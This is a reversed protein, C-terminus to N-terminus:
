LSLALWIMHVICSMGDCSVQPFLAAVLLARLLPLSKEFGDAADDAGLLVREPEKEISAEEADKAIVKQKPKGCKCKFCKKNRSFNNIKCRPGKWEGDDGNKGGGRGGVGKELAIAVGDVGGNRRGLAEVQRSRLNPPVFGAASLLELFQRKLGAITQVTKISIFNERCFDYRSKGM